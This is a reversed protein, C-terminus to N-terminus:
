EEVSLYHLYNYYKATSFLILTNQMILAKAISSAVVCPDLTDIAM